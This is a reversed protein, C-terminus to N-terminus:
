RLYSADAWKMLERKGLWENLDFEIEFDNRPLKSIVEAEFCRHLHRAKAEPLTTLLISLAFWAPGIGRYGWAFGTVHYGNGGWQGDLSLEKGDIWVRGTIYQAKIKM